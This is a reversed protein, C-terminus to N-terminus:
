AIAMKGNKQSVAPYHLNPKDPQSLIFESLQTVVEFSLM